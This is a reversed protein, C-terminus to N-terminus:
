PLSLALPTGGQQTWSELKRIFYVLSSSIAFVLARMNFVSNQINEIIQRKNANGLHKKATANFQLPQQAIITRVAFFEAFDFRCKQDTCILKGKFGNSKTHLFFIEEPKWKQTINNDKVGLRILDWLRSFCPVLSDASDERIPKWASCYILTYQDRCALPKVDFAIANIKM